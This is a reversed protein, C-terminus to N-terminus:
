TPVDVGGGGDSPRRDASAPPFSWGPTCPVGRGGLDSMVQSEAWSRAYAPGLHIRMREWFESHRM